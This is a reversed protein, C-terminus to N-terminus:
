GRKARRSEEIEPSIQGAEPITKGTTLWYAYQPLLETIESIHESTIKTTHYLVNAWKDRNLRTKKALDAPGLEEFRILEKLREKILDM